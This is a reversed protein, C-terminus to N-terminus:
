TETDAVGPGPFSFAHSCHEFLFPASSWRSCSLVFFFISISTAFLRSFSASLSASCASPLDSVSMAWSDGLRVDESSSVFFFECFEFLNLFLQFIFRCFEPMHWLTLNPMVEEKGEKKM